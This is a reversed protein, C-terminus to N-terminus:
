GTGTKPPNGEDGEPTHKELAEQIKESIYEVNGMHLMAGVDEETLGDDQLAAWVLARLERISPTQGIEALAKGTVDEFDIFANFDFRLERERDLEIKVSPVTSM